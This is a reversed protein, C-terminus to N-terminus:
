ECVLPVAPYEAKVNVRGSPTVTYSFREAMVISGDKVLWYDSTWICAGGRLSFARAPPAGLLEPIMVAESSLRCHMTEIGMGDPRRVFQSSGCTARMLSAVPFDDDSRVALVTDIGGVRDATASDATAPDAAAAPIAAVLIFLLAIPAVAFRRVPASGRVM